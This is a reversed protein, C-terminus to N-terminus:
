RLGPEHKYEISHPYRDFIEQLERDINSSRKKAKWNYYPACFWELWTKKPLEYAYKYPQIANNNKTSRNGM